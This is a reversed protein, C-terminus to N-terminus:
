YCCTCLVVLHRVVASIQDDSDMWAFLEEFHDMVTTEFVSCGAQNDPVPQRMESGAVTQVLIYRDRTLDLNALKEQANEPTNLKRGRNFLRVSTFGIANCIRTELDQVTSEASIFLARKGSGHTTTYKIEIANPIVPEPPVVLLDSDTPRSFEPKTRITVLLLKEFLLIRCFRLETQQRASDSLVVDMNEEAEGSRENTGSRLNQYASLLEATCKQVLAIHADEVEELTVDLDGGVEVYRSALLKAAQDEITGEPADLVMRWLLDAGRIQLLEKDGEDTAIVQRTTPFNYSAVFHFMGATYYEPELEPVYSTILHKCFENSPQRKVIESFRPWARDRMANSMAYKGVVHDWIDRYLDIPIAEAAWMGLFRLLDLRVELAEQYLPGQQYDTQVFACLEELITRTIDPHQEFFHGERNTLLLRNEQQSSLILVARVSGTAKPSRNAIHTACESYIRHREEIGINDCMQRLLECAEHHLNMTLKTSEKSPSTDRMIRIAVSWPRAKHDVNSWEDDFKLRLKDSVESLFRLTELGYSEIPLSYLKTCLYLLEASDMLNIITRMMTLTASVVRPDQSHAVTHWIADTQRESYLRTVVLFGVINGSRTILQPHSDVSIIYDIVQEHLLFEALYQMVPHLDGQGANNYEKWIDVLASDMAGISTVRLEMRGKVVYKKLLKFKWANGVLTPRNALDQSFPLFRSDTAGNDSPRGLPLMEKALESAIADDWQCLETLLTAFHFLLDRAIGVDVVKGPAQLDVNYSRFYQLVNRYFRPRDIVELGPLECLYRGMTSWLQTVFLAIYSKEHACVKNCVAETFAFLHEHGNVPAEVFDNFLRLGM